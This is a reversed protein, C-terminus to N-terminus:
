KDSIEIFNLMDDATDLVAVTKRKTRYLAGPNIVRAHGNREDRAVHTHGHLLYDAEQSRLAAEFGPEHGHFVLFAKGDLTVRAPVRQPVSLGVSTLYDLVAPDPYDTNGWVFTCPRGVLEDFVATSGVDGCHIVHGVGLEDFVAMAKRVM